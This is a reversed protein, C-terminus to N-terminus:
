NQDVSIDGSTSSITLMAYPEKGITATAENQKKNKYNMDINGQIDGSVCNADMQFSINEALKVTIDGSAANLKTYDEISTYVAEIEGSAASIEGSGAINQLSIDGSSSHINYKEGILEDITIDGSSVEVDGSGRLYKIDIDGSATSLAYESCEINEINIDGSALDSIFKEAKVPYSLYLDGSAQHTAIEKLEMESLLSIDGSSTQIIMDGRYSKPIFLEVKHHSSGLRFFIIEPIRQGKTITLIGNKNELEFLEKDKLPKDSSEIVKIVEEDVVSVEIDANDFDLRIKNIGTSAIQEEKVKKAAREAINGLDLNFDFSIEDSQNIRNKSVYSLFSILGVAILILITLEIIQIIRIKKM